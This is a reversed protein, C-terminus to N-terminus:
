EKRYCCTFMDTDNNKMSIVMRQSIFVKTSLKKTNGYGILFFSVYDSTLPGEVREWYVVQGHRGEEGPDLDVCILNGQSDEAFPIWCPNWWTNQILGKVSEKPEYTSFAGQQNLERMMSWVKLMQATTLYHYGNHFEMAGNHVKLSAALDIPLEIGMENQLIEVEEMSAGDNLNKYIEPAKDHYWKELRQWATIVANETLSMVERKPNGWQGNSQVFVTTRISPGIKDLEYAESTYIPVVELLRVEPEIDYLWEPETHGWDLIFLHSMKEFFPLSENQLVMNPAFILNNEIYKWILNALSQGIKDNDEQSYLGLVTTVLEATECSAGMKYMSLGLTTVTTEHKGESPKPFDYVIDIRQPTVDNGKAVISLTYDPKGFFSNYALHLAELKMRFEWKKM